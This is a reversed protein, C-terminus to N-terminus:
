DALGNVATAEDKLRGSLAAAQIKQLGTELRTVFKEHM